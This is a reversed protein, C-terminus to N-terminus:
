KRSSLPKNLMPTMLGAREGLKESRRGFRARDFSKLTQLLAKIREEADAHRAKLAEVERELMEARAAKEAMARLISKLADVDDPLPLDNPSM